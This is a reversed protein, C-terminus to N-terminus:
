CTKWRKTYGSYKNFVLCQLSFIVGEKYHYCFVCFGFRLNFTDKLIDALVSNSMEKKKRSQVITAPTGKKEELIHFYVKDRPTMTSDGLGHERM